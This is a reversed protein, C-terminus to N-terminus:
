SMTICVMHVVLGVTHVIQVIQGKISFLHGGDSGSEIRTHYSEAMIGTAKDKTHLLSQNLKMCTVLLGESPTHSTSRIRVPHLFTPSNVPEFLRGQKTESM